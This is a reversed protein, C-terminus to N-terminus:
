LIQFGSDGSHPRMEYDELWVKLRRWLAEEAIARESFTGNLSIRCMLEGSRYLDAVYHVGGDAAVTEEVQVTWELPLFRSADPHGENASHFHNM